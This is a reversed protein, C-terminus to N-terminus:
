LLDRGYGPGTNGRAFLSLSEEFVVLKIIVGDSFKSFAEAYEALCGMLPFRAGSLGRQARSRRRQAKPAVRRPPRSLERM